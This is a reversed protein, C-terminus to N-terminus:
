ASPTARSWAPPWSRRPGAPRAPPLLGASVIKKKGILWLQYVKGPPCRPCGPPSWPWSTVNPPWSWPPRAAAPRSRPSCRCGRRRCSRASAGPEPGPGPQAPGPHAVPRPRLVGRGRGLGARGRRVAVAGVAGPDPQAPPRAHTRSRPRSSAPVPPPPWSRRRAARAAARRDRRLGDRDGGRPVRPGRGRVVPLPEPSPHLPRARGPRRARRARVRRRARAPRPPLRLRMTLEGGPLRADPDLGDRIRTKIAGLTVKLLEAVQRYRTDATTPWPSRSASSRPSDTWAAGCGNATWARKWRRPSRTTRRTSRPRGSSM